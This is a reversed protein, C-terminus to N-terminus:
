ACVSLKWFLVYCICIIFFFGAFCNLSFSLISYLILNKVQLQKIQTEIEITERKLADVSSKIQISANRDVILENKFPIPSQDQVVCICYINISRDHTHILVFCHYTTEESCFLFYYFRNRKQNRDNIMQDNNLIYKITKKEIKQNFINEM